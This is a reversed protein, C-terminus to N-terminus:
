APSVNNRNIINSPLTLCLILFWVMLSDMNLLRFLLRYEIWRYILLNVIVAIWKTINLVNSHLLMM